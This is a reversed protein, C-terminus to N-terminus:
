LGGAARKVEEKVHNPHAKVWADFKERDEKPLAESRKGLNKLHGRIAQLGLIAGEDITDDSINADLLKLAERINAVEDEPRFDTDPALESLGESYRAMHNPHSKQWASYQRRITEVDGKQKESATFLHEEARELEEEIAWMKSVGAEGVSQDDEPLEKLDAILTQVSENVAIVSLQRQLQAFKGELENYADLSVHRAEEQSLGRGGRQERIAQLGAEYQEVAASGKKLIARPNAGKDAAESQVSRLAEYAEKMSKLHEKVKPTTGPLTEATEKFHLRNKPFANRTINRIDDNMEHTQRWQKYKGLLMFKQGGLQYKEPNGLKSLAGGIRNLIEEVKEEYKPDNQQKDAKELAQVAHRFDIMAGLRSIFGM